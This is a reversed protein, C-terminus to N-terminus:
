PKGFSLLNQFWEKLTNKVGQEVRDNILGEINEGLDGIQKAISKRQNFDKVLFAVTPELGRSYKLNWDQAKISNLERELEENSITIRTM